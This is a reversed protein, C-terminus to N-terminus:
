VARASRHRSRSPKRVAANPLRNRQGNVQHHVNVYFTSLPADALQQGHLTILRMSVTEHDLM